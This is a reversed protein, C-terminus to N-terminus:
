ILLIQPIHFLGISSTANLLKNGVKGNKQQSVNLYKDRIWTNWLKPNNCDIEFVRAGSTKVFDIDVGIMWGEGSKRGFGILLDNEYLILADIRHEHGHFM